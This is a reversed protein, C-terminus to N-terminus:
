HGAPEGLRFLRRRTGGCTGNGPQACSRDNYLYPGYYAQSSATGFEGVTMAASTGLAANIVAVAGLAGMPDSPEAYIDGLNPATHDADFEFVVDWYDGCGTGGGACIELGTIGTANTGTGDLIVEFAYASSFALCLFGTILIRRM